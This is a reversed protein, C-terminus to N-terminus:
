CCYKLGICSSDLKENSFFFVKEEDDFDEILHLLTPRLQHNGGSTFLDMHQSGPLAPDRGPSGGRGVGVGVEWWCAMVKLDKM